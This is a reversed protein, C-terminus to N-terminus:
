KKRTLSEVPEDFTIYDIDVTLLLYRMGTEPDAIITYGRGAIEIIGKFTKDKWEPNDKFTMSFAAMKGRNLQLFRTFKTGPIKKRYFKKM